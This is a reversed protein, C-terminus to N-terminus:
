ASTLPARDDVIKGERQAKQIDERNKQYFAPDNLESMKYTGPATDPTSPNTPNGVTVKSKNFLYSKSTALSEIAETVGTYTGDEGQAISSMDLLKTVADVDIVGRATAAKIVEQTMGMKKIEARAAELEAKASEALKQFEGKKELEAQEAATREDRLKKLEKQDKLLGSLRENKWLRQDELVKSLQEDSLKSLDFEPAQADAKPDVIPDPTAPVTM